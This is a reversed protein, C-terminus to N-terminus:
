EARNGPNGPLRPTEVLGALLIGTLWVRDHCVSHVAAAAIATPGVQPTKKPGDGTLSQVQVSSRVGFWSRAAPAGDRKGRVWGVEAGGSAHLPAHRTLMPSLAYSRM